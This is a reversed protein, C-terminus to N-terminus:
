LGLPETVSSVSVLLPETTWVNFGLPEAETVTVDDPVTVSASKVALPLGATGPGVALPM